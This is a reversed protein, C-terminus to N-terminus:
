YGCGRWWRFIGTAASVPVRCLIYWPLYVLLKAVSEALRV